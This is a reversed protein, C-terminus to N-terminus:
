WGSFLWLSLGLNVGLREALRLPTEMQLFLDVGEVGLYALRDLELLTLLRAHSIVEEELRHKADEIAVVLKKDCGVAIRAEQALDELLGLYKRVDVLAEQVEVHGIVCDEFVSQEWDLEKWRGATILPQRKHTLHNVEELTALGMHQRVDYDHLYLPRAALFLHYAPEGRM